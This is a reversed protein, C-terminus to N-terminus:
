GRGEMGITTHTLVCCPPSLHSGPSQGVQGTGVAVVERPAPTTVTRKKSPVPEGSGAGGAPTDEEGVPM